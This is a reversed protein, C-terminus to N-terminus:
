QRTYQTQRGRGQDRVTVLRNGDYLVVICDSPLDDGGLARNFCAMGSRYQWDGTLDQGNAGGVLTRDANFRFWNGNADAYSHGVVEASFTTADSIQVWDAQATTAAFGLLASMWFRM